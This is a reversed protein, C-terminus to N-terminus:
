PFLPNIRRPDGGLKEVKDRMAALDVVCPVGTFDQLVVRAPSFAIENDPEANADWSALAEIDKKQVAKGDETRLLNELLIKLSFPLRTLDGKSKQAFKELSYYRVRKSGVELESLTAFSDLSQATM